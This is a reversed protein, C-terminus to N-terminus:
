LFVWWYIRRLVMFIKHWKWFVATKSNSGRFLHDPFLNDEVTRCVGERTKGKQLSNQLAIVAQQHLFNMQNFIQLLYRAPTVPEFATEPHAEQTPTAPETEHNSVSPGQSTAVIPAQTGIRGTPPLLIPGLLRKRLPEVSNETGQYRIALIVFAAYRIFDRSRENKNLM